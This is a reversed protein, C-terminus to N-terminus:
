NNVQHAYVDSLCRFVEKNQGDNFQIQLSKLIQDFFPSIQADDRNTFLSISLGEAPVILVINNFGTSEGSHLLCDQGKDNKLVFWGLGYSISPSVFSVLKRNTLQNRLNRNSKFAAIIYASWLDYDKASCYVGGDGKTASTISQDAFVFQEGKLTYGYARNSIDADQEFIQTANMGLKDFVEDKMYNLYSKGSVQEVILSMLCYATNSYRFKAHKRDFADTYPSVLKLVDADSLQVKQHEPIVDEYDKIGSTHHILEEITINAAPVKLSPFYKGIRDKFNLKAQEALQFIAFATFQKSVSAMRFNSMEDNLEQSEMNALGAAKRYVFGNSRNHIALMLGPTNADPYYHQILSDLQQSLDQASVSSCIGFMVLFFYRKLYHMALALSINRFLFPNRNARLGKKMKMM